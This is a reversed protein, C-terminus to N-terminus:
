EKMSLYNYIYILRKHQADDNMAMLNFDWKHSLSKNCEVNLRQVSVIQGGIKKTLWHCFPSNYLKTNKKHNWMIFAHKPSEWAGAQDDNCQKIEHLIFHFQNHIDKAKENFMHHESMWWLKEYNETGM